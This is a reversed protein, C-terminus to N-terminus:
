PRWPEGAPRRASVDGFERRVVGRGKRFGFSLRQETMGEVMLAVDCRVEGGEGSLAARARAARAKGAYTAEGTWDWADGARAPFRVLDLPPSFAQDAVAVARFATPSPAYTEREVAEGHALLKVVVNGGETGRLLAVEMEMAAYGRVAGGLRLTARAGPLADPALEAATAALPTGDPVRPRPRPLGARKVAPHPACGLALLVAPLGIRVSTRPGFAPQLGREARM